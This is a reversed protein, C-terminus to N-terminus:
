LSKVSFFTKVEVFTKRNLIDEETKQSFSYEFQCLNFTTECCYKLKEILMIKIGEFRM